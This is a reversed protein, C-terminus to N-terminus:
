SLCHPKSSRNRSGDHNTRNNGTDISILFVKLLVRLQMVSFDSYVGIKKWVPNINMNM